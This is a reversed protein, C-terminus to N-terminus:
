DPTNAIVNDIPAIAPLPNKPFATIVPCENVPEIFGTTANAHSHEAVTNHRIVKMQNEPRVQVSIEALPHLPQQRGVNTEIMLVVSTASVNPLPSELSERNLLILM